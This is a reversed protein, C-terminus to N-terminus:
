GDEIALAMPPHPYSTLSNEIAVALHALTRSQVLVRPDSQEPQTGCGIGAREM